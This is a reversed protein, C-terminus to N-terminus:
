TFTITLPTSTDYDSLNSCIGDATQNILFSIHLDSYMPLSSDNDISMLTKSILGAVKLYLM